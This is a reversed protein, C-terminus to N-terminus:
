RSLYDCASLVHTKVVHLFDDIPVHEDGAGMGTPFPGYVYAPVDIYRWLRADTGGLSATPQPEFGRLAKVNAQIIGVMEHEPDCWAPPASNIVTYRAQPYGALIKEVEALVRDREVGIPLRIDAEIVCEGPVMNVKLGARVM